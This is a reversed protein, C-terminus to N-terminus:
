NRTVQLRKITQWQEFNHKGTTKSKEGQAQTGAAAAPAAVALLLCLTFISTRKTM